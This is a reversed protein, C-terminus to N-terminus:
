ADNLKLVQGRYWQLAKDLYKRATSSLGRQLEWEAGKIGLLFAPPCAGYLERSVALVASPAVSHTTFSFSSEPHCPKLSFGSALRERSADVFLVATAGAILAADEVQLQYRYHIEGPFPMQEAERAFAWGLGDDQRGDNGIALLLVGPQNLCDLTYSM